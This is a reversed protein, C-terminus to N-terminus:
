SWKGFIKEFFSLKKEYDICDNNKNKEYPQQTWHANSQKYTDELNDPCECNNPNEYYHKLYKCSDCYVKM